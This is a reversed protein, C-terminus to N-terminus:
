LFNILCNQMCIIGYIWMSRMFIINIANTIESFKLPFQIKKYIKLGVCTKLSIQM